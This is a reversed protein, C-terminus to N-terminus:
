LCYVAINKSSKVTKNISHYKVGLYKGTIKVIHHWEWIQKYETLYYLFPLFASCFGVVSFTWFINLVIESFLLIQRVSFLKTTGKM